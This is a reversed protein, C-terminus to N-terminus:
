HLDEKFHKLMSFFFIFFIWYGGGFRNILYLSLICFTFILATSLFSLIREICGSGESKAIAARLIGYGDYGKVPLLNSLATALNIMAFLWVTSGLVPTCLSCLLFIFLNALPGSLYMMIEDDYSMRGVARIRFGSLVGRIRLRSKGTVFIWTIHGSEHIIASLVTMWGIASDDMGFILLAWFFVPLVSSISKIVGVFVSINKVKGVSYFRRENQYYM